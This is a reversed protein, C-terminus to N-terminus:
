SYKKNKLINISKSKPNKSLSLMKKDKFSYYENMITVFFQEDM